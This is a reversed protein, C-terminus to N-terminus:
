IFIIVVMIGVITGMTKYMKSNVLKYENAEKVQNELISKSNEIINLQSEMDSRGLNKLTSIFVNKDYDSLGGISSINNVISQNILYENDCNLMDVVIVGIAEKLKTTLKQRSVEYANPLIAMMYRIENEVLNLFTIMERLIYERDKLSKSKLVGIYTTLIVILISIIIKAISM